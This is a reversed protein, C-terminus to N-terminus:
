DTQYSFILSVYGDLRVKGNSQMYSNQAHEFVVVSQFFDLSFRVDTFLVIFSM